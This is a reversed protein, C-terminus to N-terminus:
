ALYLGLIALLMVLSGALTYLFFKLAARQANGHGWVGILFYMGVLSLDFFVYFLFLDLAVFVGLSVCELFLLWAYYEHGRGKVDVPYAASAVFILASMAALVLSIGDVGVKYAVGLSPIWPAHEVLEFGGSGEFRTWVVAMLALPVAAVAVSFWRQAPASARRMFLVVVAGALPVFVAATLM